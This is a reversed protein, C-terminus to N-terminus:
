NLPPGGAVLRSAPWLQSVPGSSRTTPRCPWERETFPRAAPQCEAKGPSYSFRGSGLEFVFDGGLAERVYIKTQERPDVFGLPSCRWWRSSVSSGISRLQDSTYLQELEWSAVPNGSPDYIAVAKGYGLNHWNDFTILHGTNSVLFDVPAVPNLLAIDAVLQYSRDPQRAYFLGRAYDGHQAGAFGVSDGVSEGPEVRVFHTGNESFATMVRPGPWSDAALATSALLLVGGIQATRSM